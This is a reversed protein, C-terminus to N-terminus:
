TNSILTQTQFVVAPIETLLPFHAIIEPSNQPLVNRTLVRPGRLAEQMRFDGNHYNIILGLDDVM